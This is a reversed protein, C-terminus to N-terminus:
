HTELLDKLKKKSSADGEDDTIKEEVTCQSILKSGEEGM